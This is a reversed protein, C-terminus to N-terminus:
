SWILSAKATMQFWVNVDENRLSARALAPAPVLDGAVRLLWNTERLVVDGEKGRGRTDVLEACRQSADEILPGVPIFVNGGLDEACVRDLEARVVRVKVIEVFRSPARTVVEVVDPVEQVVGRVNLVAAEVANGAKGAGRTGVVAFIKKAGKNLVVPLDFGVERQV